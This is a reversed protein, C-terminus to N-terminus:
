APLFSRRETRNAAFQRHADRVRAAVSRREVLLDDDSVVGISIARARAVRAAAEVPSAPLWHWEAKSMAGLRWVSSYM